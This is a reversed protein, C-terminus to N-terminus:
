VLSSRKGSRLGRLKLNCALMGRGLYLRAGRKALFHYDPILPWLGTEKTWTVEKEIGNRHLGSGM